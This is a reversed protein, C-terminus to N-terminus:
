NINLKSYIDRDKLNYQEIINYDPFPSEYNWYKKCKKIASLREHSIGNEDINYPWPM